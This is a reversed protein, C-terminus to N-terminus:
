RSRSAPRQEGSMGTVRAREGTTDIEFRRNAYGRCESWGLGADMTEDFWAYRIDVVLGQDDQDVIEARAIAQM